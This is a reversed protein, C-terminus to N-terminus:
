TVNRKWNTYPIPKPIQDHQILRNDTYTMLIM